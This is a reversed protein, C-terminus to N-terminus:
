EDRPDPYHSLTWSCRKDFSWGKDKTYDSYGKSDAFKMFDKKENKTLGKKLSKLFIKDAQKGSIIKSTNNKSGGYGKPKGSGPGGM